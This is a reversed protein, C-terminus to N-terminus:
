LAKLIRSVRVHNIGVKAAIDRLSFGQEHLNSVRTELTEGSNAEAAKREWYNIEYQKMKDRNKKRWEKIYENRAEESLQM